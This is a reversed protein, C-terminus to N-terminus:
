LSINLRNKYFIIPAQSEKSEKDDQEVFAGLIPGLFAIGTSKIRINYRRMFIGHSFEHVGAVILIAVLFYIFYFPPFFNSLGFLQPFYPIVLAIPPSNGIANILLTDWIYSYTTKFILYLIGIMLIYATPIILYRLVTLTKKYKGGIREILRMGWKTRYLFLLGERGLNKRNKYLFFGVFLSFLILFTIDYVIITM